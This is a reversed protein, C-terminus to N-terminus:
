ESACVVIACECVVGAREGGTEFVFGSPFDCNRFTQLVWFVNHESTARSRVPRYPHEGNVPSSISVESSVVNFSRGQQVRRGGVNLHGRYKECSMANSHGGQDGELGQAEMEFRDSARERSGVTWVLKGVGRIEMDRIPAADGIACSSFRM